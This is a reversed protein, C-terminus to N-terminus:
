GWLFIIDMCVSALIKPVEWAFYAGINVNVAYWQMNNNNNISVMENGYVKCEVASWYAEYNLFYIYIYIKKKQPPPAFETFERIWRIRNIVFNLKSILAM